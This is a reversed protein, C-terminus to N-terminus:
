EASYGLRALTPGMIRNVLVAEEAAFRERWLGPTASRAFRGPGRATAPIAEFAHADSATKISAASAAIGAWDAIRSLESPTDARLTEYRVLTRLSPDHGDFARQMLDMRDVWLLARNELFTLRDASGAVEYGSSETIWGGSVGDLASDIVDRGDRVLFLLRSAPLAGLLASAGSSGNPEKIVIRSPLAERLRTGRVAAVALRRLILRRLDREWVPRTARSFFYDDRDGESDLVRPDRDYALGTVASQRLGLHAGVLPENLGLVGPLARLLDLLWTSGSRGPGLIWLM